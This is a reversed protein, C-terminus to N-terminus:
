EKITPFPIWKCLDTEGFNSFRNMALSSIYINAKAKDQNFCTSLVEVIRSEEPSLHKPMTTLGLDFQLASQISLINSKSLGFDSMIASLSKNELSLKNFPLAAHAQNIQSGAYIMAQEPTLDLIELNPTRFKNSNQFKQNTDSLKPLRYFAESFPLPETINTYCQMASDPICLFVRDPTGDLINLAQGASMCDESTAFPKAKKPKILGTTNTRFLYYSM